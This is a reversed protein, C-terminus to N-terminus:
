HAKERFDARIVNDAYGRYSKSKVEARDWFASGLLQPLIVRDRDPHAKLLELFRAPTVETALEGWTKKPSYRQLAMGVAYAVFGCDLPFEEPSDSWELLPEMQEHWVLNLINWAGPITDWIERVGIGHQHGNYNVSYMKHPHESWIKM